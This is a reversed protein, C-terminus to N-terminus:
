LDFNYTLTNSCLASFFNNGCFGDVYLGPGSISTIPTSVRTSHSASLLVFKRRQRGFGSQSWTSPLFTINKICIKIYIQINFHSPAKKYFILFEHILILM